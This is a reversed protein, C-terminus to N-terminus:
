DPAVVALGPFYTRYRAADRTLLTYDSVLAHAGIYFDPLPSTRTGGSRQYSFFAKGAIFGASFPLPERRFIKDPVAIDTDEVSEFRVSVEAYVIPDIVLVGRRAARALADSSWSAWAIDDTLM